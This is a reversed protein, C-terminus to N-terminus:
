VSITLHTLVDGKWGYSWRLSYFFVRPPPPPPCTTLPPSTPFWELTKPLWTNDFLSHHTLLRTTLTSFGIKTKWSTQVKACFERGWGSWFRVIFSTMWPKVLPYLEKHVFGQIDFLCNIIVQYQQSFSASKESAHIQRIGIRHSSCLRLTMFKCGHKM